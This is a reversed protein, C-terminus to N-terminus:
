NEELYKDLFDLCMSIMSLFYLAQSKNSVSWDKSHFEVNRFHGMASLLSNIGKEFNKKTESNHSNVSKWKPNLIGKAQEIDDIGTIEFLHNKFIKFAKVVAVDYDGKMFYENVDDGLNDNFSFEDTMQGMDSLYGEATILIDIGNQVFIRDGTVAHVLIEVNGRMPLNVMNPIGLKKLIKKARHSLLLAENLYKRPEIHNKPNQMYDMYLVLNDKIKIILELDTM